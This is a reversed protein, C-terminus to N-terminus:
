MKLGDYGTMHGIKFGDYGTMHGSVASPKLPTLWRDDYSRDRGVLWSKWECWALCMVMRMVRNCIDFLRYWINEDSCSLVERFLVEIVICIRPLMGLSHCCTKMTCEDICAQGAIATAITFLIAYKPMIVAKRLMAIFPISAHVAIFWHVGFKECHERWMGFPVNVAASAVGVALLKVPLAQPRLHRVPKTAALIARAQIIVQPCQLHGAPNFVVPALPGLMKRMPCQGSSQGVDGQSPAPGARPKPKSVEPGQRRHQAPKAHHQLARMIAGFDLFGNGFGSLSITALASHRLPHRAVTTLKKPEAESCQSSRQEPQCMPQAPAAPQEVYRVLPVVGGPGHFRCDLRPQFTAVRHM